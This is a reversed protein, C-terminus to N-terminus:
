FSWFVQGDEGGKSGSSRSCQDACQYELSLAKADAARKVVYEYAM